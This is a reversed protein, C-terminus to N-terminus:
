PIRSAKSLPLRSSGVAKDMVVMEATAATEEM